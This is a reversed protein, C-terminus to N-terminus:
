FWDGKAAISAAKNSKVIAAMEKHVRPFIGDSALVSPLFPQQSWFRDNGDVLKLFAELLAQLWEARNDVAFQESYRLLRKMGKAEKPWNTFRGGVVKSLFSEKLAHYLERDEEPLEPLPTDEVSAPKGTDSVGTHIIPTTYIKTTTDSCVNADPPRAQEASMQTQHDDHKTPTETQQDDEEPIPFGNDFEDGGRLAHLLPGPKIFLRTGRKGENPRVLRELLGKQVMGTILRTISDAHTIGLLPLQRIVYKRDVWGYWNGDSYVGHMKGSGYWYDFWDLFCLEQLTVNYQIAIGQSFNHIITKM